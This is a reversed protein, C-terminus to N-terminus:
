AARCKPGRMWHLGSILLDGTRPTAALRAFRESRWVQHKDPKLLGIRRAVRYTL